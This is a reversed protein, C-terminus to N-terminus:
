NDQIYKHTSSKIYVIIFGIIILTASGWFISSLFLDYNEILTGVNTTTENNVPVETKVEKASHLGKISQATKSLDEMSSVPINKNAGAKIGFWLLGSGVIIKTFDNPASGATNNGAHTNIQHINGANAINNNLNQLAANIQPLVPNPINNALQNLNQGALMNNGAANWMGFPHQLNNVANPQFPNGLLPQMGQQPVGLNHINNAPRVARPVGRPVRDFLVNGNHTPMTGPTQGSPPVYEGGFINTCHGVTNLCENFIISFELKTIVILFFTLIFIIFFLFDYKKFFKRIRFYNFKTVNVCIALIFEFVIGIGV